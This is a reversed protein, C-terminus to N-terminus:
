VCVCCLSLCVCVPASIRFYSQDLSLIIWLSVFATFAFPRLLGPGRTRKSPKTFLEERQRSRFGRWIVRRDTFGKRLGASQGAAHCFPSSQFFRLLPYGVSARTNLSTSCVNSAQSFAKVSRFFSMCSNQMM